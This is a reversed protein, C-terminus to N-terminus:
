HLGERPLGSLEFNGSIEVYGGEDGAFFNNAKVLIIVIYLSGSLCMGLWFWNKQLFSFRM